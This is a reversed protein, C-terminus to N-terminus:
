LIVSPEDVPFVDGPTRETYYEEDEVAIVEISKM